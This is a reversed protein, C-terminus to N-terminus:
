CERPIVLVEGFPVSRAEDSIWLVDYNVDYEPFNGQTDSFYLLLTPPQLREDILKFVPRFDTGGGGKLTVELSEGSVVERYSQIKADCVILDIIYSPFHILIAEVESM